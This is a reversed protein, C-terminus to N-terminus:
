PRQPSAPQKEQNPDANGPRDESGVQSRGRGIPEFIVIEWYGTDENLVPENVTVASVGGERREWDAVEAAIQDMLDLADTEYVLEVTTVLTPRGMSDEELIPLDMELHPSDADELLGDIMDWIEDSVIGEAAHHSWAPAAFLTALAMLFGALYKKM